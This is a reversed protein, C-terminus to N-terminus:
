VRDKVPIVFKLGSWTADVACVKVDVLGINLGFSRVINGDLNTDIKAAKKPWSVWVMGDQKIEKALNPLLEELEKREKTFFHIFNKLVASNETILLGSPLEDFLEFYNTPPNVLKIKYGEKLGLKKVLPTASYGASKM